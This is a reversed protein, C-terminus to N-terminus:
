GRTALHVRSKTWLFTPSTNFCLNWSIIHCSRSHHNNQYPLVLSYWPPVSKSHLWDIFRLFYCSMHSAPFRFSMLCSVTDELLLLCFIFMFPCTSLEWPYCQWYIRHSNLSPFFWQLSYHNSLVWVALQLFPKSLYFSLALVNQTHFITHHM